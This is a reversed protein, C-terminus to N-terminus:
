PAPVAGAKLSARILGAEDTSIYPTFECLMQGGEAELCTEGDPQNLGILKFNGTM